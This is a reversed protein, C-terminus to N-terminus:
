AEKQMQERLQCYKSLEENKESLEKSYNDKLIKHESKLHLLQTLMDRMKKGQNKGGEENKTM